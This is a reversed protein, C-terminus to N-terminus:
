VRHHHRWRRNRRGGRHNRRRGRHTKKLRPAIPTFEINEGDCHVCGSCQALVLISDFCEEDSATSEGNESSVVGYEDLGTNLLSLHNTLHRDLQHALRKLKKTSGIIENWIMKNGAPRKLAKSRDTIAARIGHMNLGKLREAL